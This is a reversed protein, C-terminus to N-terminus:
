QKKAQLAFSCTPCVPLTTGGGGQDNNPTMNSLTEQQLKLKNQRQQM